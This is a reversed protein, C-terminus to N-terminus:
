AMVRQPRHTKLIKVRVANREGSFRFYVVDGEHPKPEKRQVDYRSQFILQGEIELTIAKPDITLVRAEM